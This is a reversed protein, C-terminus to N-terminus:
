YNVIQVGEKKVINSLEIMREKSPTKFSRSPKERDLDEYKEDGFCHYPLLEIKPEKINELVFEATERINDDYANVGETVPIRVIISLNLQGLKKINQLITKNSKGTFEIHKKENM